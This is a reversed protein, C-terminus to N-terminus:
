RPPSTPSTSCNACTRPPSSCCALMRRHTPPALGEKEALVVPEIGAANMAVAAPVRQGTVDFVEGEGMIALAVAALPALDGSCGLSGYEHCGAHDRRQAARCPRRPARRIGTYGSALTRLRLVM